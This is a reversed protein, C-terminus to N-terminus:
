PRGALVRTAAAPLLSLTLLVAAAVRTNAPLVPMSWMPAMIMVGIVRASVLIMTPWGSPVLEEMLTALSM